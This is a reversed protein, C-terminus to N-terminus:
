MYRRAGACLRIYIYRCVPLRGTNLRLFMFNTKFGNFKTMKVGKQVRLYGIKKSLMRMKLNIGPLLKFPPTNCTDLHFKSATNISTFFILQLGQIELM